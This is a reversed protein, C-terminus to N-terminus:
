IMGIRLRLRGGVLAGQPGMWAWDELALNPGVGFAEASYGRLIAATLLREDRMVVASSAEIEDVSPVVGTESMVPAPRLLKVEFQAARWSLCRQVVIAEAAPSGLEPVGYVRLLSVALLECDETAAAANSVYRRAPLSIGMDDYHDVVADLLAACLDAPTM